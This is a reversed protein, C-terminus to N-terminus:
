GAQRTYRAGTTAPLTPTRPLRPSVSTPSSDTLSCSACFDVASTGTMDGDTIEYVTMISGKLGNDEVYQLLLKAWEQPKHWYILYTAATPSQKPPDPAVLGEKLLHNVLQKIASPQLRGVFNARDILVMGPATYRQAKSRIGQNWFLSGLRSGGDEATVDITFVRYFKCYSLFLSTWLGLQHSFTQANPQLRYSTSRMLKLTLAAASDPVFTFFPPFSWIAPFVFGNVDTVPRLPTPISGPLNVQGSGGKQQGSTTVSVNSNAQMSALLTQTVTTRTLVLDADARSQCKSRSM